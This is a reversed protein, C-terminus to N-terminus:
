PEPVVQRLKEFFNQVLVDRQCLPDRFTMPIRYVDRTYLLLTLANYSWAPDGHSLSAM